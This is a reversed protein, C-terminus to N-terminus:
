KNRKPDRALVCMEHWLLFGARVEKFEGWGARSKFVIGVGDTGAGLRCLCVKFFVTMEEGGGWKFLQNVMTKRSQVIGELLVFMEGRQVSRYGNDARGLSLSHLIHAFWCRRLSTSKPRPLIFAYFPNQSSPPPTPPLWLLPWLSFAFSLCLSWSLALILRPRPLLLSLGRRLVHRHLLLPTLLLAILNTSLTSRAM